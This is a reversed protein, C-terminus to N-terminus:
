PRARTGDRTALAGLRPRAALNELARLCAVRDARNKFMRQEVVIDGYGRAPKIKQQLYSAPLPQEQSFRVPFGNMVVYAAVPDKPVIIDGFRKYLDGLKETSMVQTNEATWQCGGGASSASASASASLKAGSNGGGCGSASTARSVVLLVLLVLVGLSAWILATQRTGCPMTPTIQHNSSWVSGACHTFM